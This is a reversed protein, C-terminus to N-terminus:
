QEDSFTLRPLGPQKGAVMNARAQKTIIVEAGAALMADNGGTHDGHQHTNLVYRIPKESIGKVKEVISPADKAFKDDVLVVGDTTPMVAVNGGNEFLVWINESAKEVRLAPRPQKQQQTWAVWVGAIGMAVVGARICWEKRFVM